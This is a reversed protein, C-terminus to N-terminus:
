SKPCPWRQLRMESFLLEIDDGDADHMYMLIHEEDCKPLLLHQM